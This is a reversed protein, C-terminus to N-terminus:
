IFRAEKKDGLSGISVKNGERQYNLRLTNMVVSYTEARRVTNKKTKFVRKEGERCNPRVFTNISFM